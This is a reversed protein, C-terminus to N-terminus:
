KVFRLTSKPNENDEHETKKCKILIKYTALSKKSYISPMQVVEALINTNTNKTAMTELLVAANLLMSSIPFSM